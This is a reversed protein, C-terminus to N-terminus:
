DGSSCRARVTSLGPRSGRLSPSFYAVCEGSRGIVRCPEWGLKRKCCRAYARWRDRKSGARHRTARSVGISSPREAERLPGRRKPTHHTRSGCSRRKESPPGTSQAQGRCPSPGSGVSRSLGLAGHEITHELVVQLAEELAGLSISAVERAEDDSLETPEQAAPNPRVPKQAHPALALPIGM